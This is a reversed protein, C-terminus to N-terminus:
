HKPNDRIREKKRYEPNKSGKKFKPKEKPTDETKVKAVRGESEKIAQEALKARQKVAGIGGGLKLDLKLVKQSVTLKSYELQREQAEVKRTDLTKM